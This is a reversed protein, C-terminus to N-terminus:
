ASHSMELRKVARELAPEATALSDVSEDTVEDVAASWARNLYREAEALPDMIEAYRAMGVRQLLEGRRDAFDELMFSISDGIGGRILRLREADTSAHAVEDRLARVADLAQGLSAHPGRESSAANPSLGEAASSKRLLGAAIVLGACSAVFWWRSQWNAFEFTELRVNEIENAKLIALTPPDIATGAAFLPASGEGTTAAVQGAPASLQPWEPEPDAAQEEVILELREISVLYATSAAIGGVIMSAIILLNAILKM